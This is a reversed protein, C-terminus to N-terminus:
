GNTQGIPSSIGVSVDQGTRALRARVRVTLVNLSQTVTAQVTQVDPELLLQQEIRARLQILDGAPLPQKVRIGVGYAPIHFFEGPTTTLRRIILKKLLDAGSVLTYDGGKIVLTGSLNTSDGITITPSNALDRSASGKAVAKQTPTSRAVETVGAFDAFDPQSAINDAADRLNRAIVRAEGQSSPFPTGSRVVWELPAKYPRIEAVELLQITNPDIAVALEWSDINRVDGPLVSLVDKPPKSLIVVVEHTSIAYAGVITLATTIGFSGTGWSGTGWPSSM